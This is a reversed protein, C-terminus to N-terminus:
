EGALPVVVCVLEPVDVGSGWVVEGGHGVLGGCVGVFADEISM